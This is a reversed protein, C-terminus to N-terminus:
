VKLCQHLYSSLLLNDTLVAAPLYAIQLNAALFEFKPKPWQSTLQDSKFLVEKASTTMKLSKLCFLEIGM